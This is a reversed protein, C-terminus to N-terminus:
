KASPGLGRGPRPRSASPDRGVPRSTKGAPSPPRLRAGTDPKSGVIPKRPAARSDLAPGGQRPSAKVRSSSTHAQTPSPTANKGGTAADEMLAMVEGPSLQRFQGSKLTGLKVPGVATRILRRVPHGVAALMLRVQRKRGERLVIEIRCGERQAARPILHAEAPATLRGEILVGTRLREMEAQTPKGAVEALYRKQVEHRPHTLAHTFAGDNTLLLLGESERDLRGVPHLGEVSPHGRGFRAELGPVVLEM